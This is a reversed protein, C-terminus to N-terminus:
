GPIPCSENVNTIQPTGCRLYQTCGNTDADFCCLTYPSSGNGGGGKATNRSTEDMGTVFSSIKLKDLNLKQKKM